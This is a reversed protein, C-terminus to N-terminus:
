QLLIGDINQNNNLKQITGLIEKENCDSKLNFVFSDLGIRKCAKEKNSVYVGSAPDNGVRVVGLGPPRGAESSFTNIDKQLRAELERALKKGNLIHVM